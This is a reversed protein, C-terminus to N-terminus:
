KRRRYHEQETTAPSKRVQEKTVFRGTKASRDVTIRNNNQTNSSNRKM